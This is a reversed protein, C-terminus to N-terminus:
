NACLVKEWVNNAMDPDVNAQGPDIIIKVTGPCALKWMRTVTASAGPDIAPVPFSQYVVGNVYFDGQCAQSRVVGKNEIKITFTMTTGISAMTPSFSASVALDPNGTLTLCGSTNSFHGASNKINVKYCITNVGDTDGRTFTFAKTGLKASVGQALIKFISTNRYLIIDVTQINGTRIWTVAHSTGSEWIEGGKPSLLQIGGVEPITFEESLAECKGDLTRIRLQCKGPAPAQSSPDWNFAGDNPTSAALTLGGPMVSKGPRLLTISVNADQTGNRNWKIYIINNPDCSDNKKPATVALCPFGRQEIQPITRSPQPYMKGDGTNGPKASLTFLGSKSTVSGDSTRFKVFYDGGAAATGGTYAGVTWNYAGQGASGIALDEIINGLKGAGQWLSITVKTSNALGAFTWAIPLSKGIELTAGAAPSGVTISAALVSVTALMVMLLLSWNRKM